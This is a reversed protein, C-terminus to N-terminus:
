AVTKSWSTSVGLRTSYSLLLLKLRQHHCHWLVKGVNCVQLCKEHSTSLSGKLVRVIM